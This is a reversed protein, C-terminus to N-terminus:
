GGWVERAELQPLVETEQLADAHWARMEEMSLLADRYRSAVEGLPVGYIHFRWAVPAYMADAISFEGFLWPGGTGYQARCEEWIAVIRAIGRDVEDSVHRWPFSARLNMPLNARVSNFGSHMEASVSRAVARAGPDAPWGHGGLFRESVYECIALSDWVRLDGDILVPVLGSPSQKALKEASGPVYLPLGVESFPVGNRKMFLWPRLSWSSYNKNGIVLTAAM